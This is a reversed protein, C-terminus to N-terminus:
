QTGFQSRAYASHLAYHLKAEPRAVPQACLLTGFYEHMSAARAHTGLAVICHQRHKKTTAKASRRLDASLNRTCRGTAIGYRFIQGCVQLVRDALDYSGRIEIARIAQLLEPAEIRGIPRKGFVPFINSELRRKVDAAHHPVWTHLQKNYWERAVVEFSNEASLKKRLNAAKREASPDLDAELQRRM